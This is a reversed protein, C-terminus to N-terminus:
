REQWCFSPSKNNQSQLIGSPVKGMIADTPRSGKEPSSSILVKSEKAFHLFDLLLQIGSKLEANLFAQLGGGMGGAAGSGPINSIDKGTYQCIVDSLKKMNADLKTVM